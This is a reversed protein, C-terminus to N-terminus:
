VGNRWEELAPKMLQFRNYMSSLEQLTRNLSQRLRTDRDLNTTGTGVEEVIQKVREILNELLAVTTIASGLDTLAWDLRARIADADTV